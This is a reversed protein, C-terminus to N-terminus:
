IEMDLSKKGRGGPGLGKREKDKRSRRKSAMKQPVNGKEGCRDEGEEM